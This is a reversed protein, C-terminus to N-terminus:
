AKTVAVKRPPAETPVKYPVTIELIGDKYTADVDDLVVDKPVRIMREFSGYHFESRVRGQLEEKAETKREARLHLVGDGVTIEVDKDPDIGPMEARIVLTEDTLEEEVRLRDEAGFFPRVGEIWRFLDPGDFWDWRRLPWEFRRVDLSKNEM